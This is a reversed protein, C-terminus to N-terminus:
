GEKEFLGAQSPNDPSDVNFFLQRVGKENSKVFMRSSTVRTPLKHGVLFETEVEGLEGDEETVCFLLPEGARAHFCVPSCVSLPLSLM